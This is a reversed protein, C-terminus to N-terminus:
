IRKIEVKAEIEEIFDSRLPQFILDLALTEQLIYDQHKRFVQELNEDCDIFLHIREELRFGEDKRKKQIVSILERVLGEQILDENPNLDYTIIIDGDTSSSTYDKLEKKLLLEELLIKEEQFIIFGQKKIQDLDQLSLGKLEEQVMKLKPGLKKGLIKLNPQIVPYAIEHEHTSYIINKVNLEQQIFGEVQKLFQLVKEDDYTITLTLLPIKIKIKEQVRKQRGLLIVKQMWYFTENLDKQILEAKPFDELHVSLLTKGYPKLYQYLSEAFFPVFPALIKSLSLLVSYLTTYAKMKDENLDETWFRRRNFRIYWNTLDEIFDNLPKIVKYLEYSQLEKEITMLLDNLRSLIWQDFLHDSVLSKKDNWHDLQAYSTFFSYANKLPLLIQKVMEKPGQDDFRLEEGKILPSNIYYLRLADAGHQQIIDMPPTFNKLSKSMKKGDKALILGTVIVNKFPAQKKIITGLILLTYFWGRTQDLGETIFEAPYLAEQGSFPYHNQAFPMAGSEFWCDLVEEIRKYFGKEGQLTFSLQDVIDRHLDDVKKGTLQELEEKSGVCYYKKEEENYWLPIPTGWIRNRSIAWDQAEKLWQGFRGKKLHSPVWHITENNKMLEEKIKEVAVYWSPIALYILPTNSRPCFPYSHTYQEQQVLLTKEKLYKIILKDAEKFKIGKLFDFEKKFFGYQDLTYPLFYLENNKLIRLDDEGYTPALHVIGTGQEDTVYSDAFIKFYGESKKEEFFSFLPEYSLGVLDKGLVTKLIKEEQVKNKLIFYNKQENEVLAYELDPHVCLGLNSPLTWPTTTWVLFDAEEGKFRITISPDQVTQYNSNAEFNSLITGLQPSYGVVKTGQYIFDQKWLEKFVWWVSEMFTPNLTKYDDEFDVWRGLRTIEEEWEKVYRFVISKCENNYGAIGLKSVAEQASMKLKKDIEHEIPLGHCDWGFRREVYHGKMTFYRPLIDKLTSVLLHGHHPLGTAFPPGDYFIYSKKNKNKNLSLKFVGHTKWFGLIAEEQEVFSDKM